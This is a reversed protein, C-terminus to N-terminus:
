TINGPGVPLRSGNSMYSGHTAKCAPVAITCCLICCSSDRCLRWGGGGGGGGGGRCGCGIGPSTGIPKRPGNGYAAPAMSGPTPDAGPAGGCGASQPPINALSTFPMGRDSTLKVAKRCCGCVAAHKPCCNQAVSCCCTRAACGCCCRPGATCCGRPLASSRWPGGWCCCCCVAARCCCSCCCCSSRFAAIPVPRLRVRCCLESVSAAAAAAAAAPDAAPRMAGLVMGAAAAATAAASALAPANPLPVAPAPLAAPGGPMVTAPGEPPLLLGRGTVV